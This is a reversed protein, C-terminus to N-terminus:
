YESVTCTFMFFLLSMCPKIRSVVFTAFPSNRQSEEHKSAFHISILISLTETCVKTHHKHETISFLCFDCVSSIPGFTRDKRPIFYVVSLLCMTFPGYILPKAPISSRHISCTTTVHYIIARSQIIISNYSCWGFLRYSKISSFIM